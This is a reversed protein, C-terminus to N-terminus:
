PLELWVWIGKGLGLGIACRLWGVLLGSASGNRAAVM